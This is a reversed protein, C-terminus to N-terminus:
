ILVNKNNENILRSGLWLHDMSIALSIDNRETLVGNIWMVNILHVSFFIIEPLAFQNIKWCYGCTSLFSLINYKLAFWFTLM